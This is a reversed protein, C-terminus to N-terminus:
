DKRFKLCKYVSHISIRFHLSLETVGMGTDDAHAKVFELFDPNFSRGKKIYRSVKERGKTDVTRYEVEQPNYLYMNPLSEM